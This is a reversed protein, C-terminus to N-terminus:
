ERVWNGDRVVHRVRVGDQVIERVLPDFTWYEDITGHGLM